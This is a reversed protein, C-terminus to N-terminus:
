TAGIAFVVAQFAIVWISETVLALALVLTTIIASFRPGRADIEIAKVSTVSSM